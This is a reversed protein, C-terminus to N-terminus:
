PRQPRVHPLLVREGDGDAAMYACLIQPDRSYLSDNTAALLSCLGAALSITALAVKRYNADGSTYGGIHNTM